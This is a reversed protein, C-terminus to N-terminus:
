ASSVPEIGTPPAMYEWSSCTIKQCYVSAHLMIGLLTYLLQYAYYLLKPTFLAAAITINHFENGAM